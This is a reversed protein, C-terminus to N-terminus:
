HFTGRRNPISCYPQITWIPLISEQQWTKMNNILLTQKTWQRASESLQFSTKSTKLSEPISSFIDHLSSCLQRMVGPKTWPLFSFFTAWTCRSTGPLVFWQTRFVWHLIWSWTSSLCAGNIKLSQTHAWRKPYFMRDNPFLFAHSCTDNWLCPQDQSFKALPLPLNSNVEVLKLWLGIM